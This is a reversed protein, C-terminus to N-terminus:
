YRTSMHSAPYTSAPYSPQYTDARKQLNAVIELRIYDIFQFFSAVFAFVGAVVAVGYSWSLYTYTPEPLWRNDYGVFWGYVLTSIAIMIGPFFFLINYIDETM